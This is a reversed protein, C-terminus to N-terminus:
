KKKWKGVAKEKKPMILPEGFAPYHMEVLGHNELIRGWEEVKGKDVNLMPALQSCKMGGKEAIINYLRDVETELFAGSRYEKPKSIELPRKRATPELRARLTKRAKGHGRAM